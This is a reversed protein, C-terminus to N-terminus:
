KRYFLRQVSPQLNMNLIHMYHQANITDRCSHLNGDMNAATCGWVMVCSPNSVVHNYCSHDKTEDKNRSVKRGINEYSVQFITEDTWM